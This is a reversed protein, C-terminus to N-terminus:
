VREGRAAHSFRERPATLHLRINHPGNFSGRLSRVSALAGVESHRWPARRAGCGLGSPARRGRMVLSTSAVARRRESSWARGFASVSTQLNSPHQFSGSGDRGCSRIRGSADNFGLARLFGLSFLSKRRDTYRDRSVPPREGSKVHPRGTCGSTPGDLERVSRKRRKHLSQRLRAHSQARQGTRKRVNFRRSSRRSDIGTSPQSPRM